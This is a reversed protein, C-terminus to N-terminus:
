SERRSTSCRARPSPPSLRLERRRVDAGPLASRTGVRERTFARRKMVVVSRAFRAAPPSRWGLGEAPLARERDRSPPAPTCDRFKAVLPVSVRAFPGSRLRERTPAAARWKIVPRLPGSRRVRSRRLRALRLRALFPGRGLPCRGTPVRARAGTAPRATVLKLSRAKPVRARAGTPSPGVSALSSMPAMIAAAPRPAGGNRLLDRGACRNGRASCSPSTRLSAARRPSFRPLSQTM